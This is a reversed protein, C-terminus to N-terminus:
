EDGIKLLCNIYDNTAQTELQEDAATKELEKLFKKDAESMYRTDMTKIREEIEKLEKLNQSVLNDDLVEPEPKIDDIEKQLSPSFDIDSEKSQMKKIYETIDQETIDPVQKPDVKATGEYKKNDLGKFLAIGNANEKGTTDTMTYRYGDYGQAKLNDNLANLRDLAEDNDELFNRINEFGDKITPTASFVEKLEDDLNDLILRGMDSDITSDANIIKKPDVKFSHVAGVTESMKDGALNYAKNPDDVLHVVNDGFDLDFTNHEINDLDLDRDTTKSSMYFSTQNLEVDELKKFKWNARISDAPANSPTNMIKDYYKRILGSDPMKNDMLNKIGSKVIAGQAEVKNFLYKSGHLFTPMALAGGAVSIFADNLSYDKQARKSSYYNYPEIATNALVGEVVSKTFTGEQLKSAMMAVRASNKAKNVKSLISGIGGTAIGMVVDAAFEVPDTAHAALGGLMSVGWGSNRGRDSLINQLRKNEKAQADLEQAVFYPVPKDFPKEVNTFMKNLEEPATMGFDGTPKMQELEDLYDNRLYNTIFTDQKGLDYAAGLRDFIDYQPAIDEAPEIKALPLPM